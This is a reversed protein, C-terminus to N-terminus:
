LPQGDIRVSSRPAKVTVQIAGSEISVVVEGDDEVSSAELATEFAEHYGAVKPGMTKVDGNIIDRANVPDDVTDSFYRGLTQRGKSDGRFWGESMGRDMIYYAIEPDLAKDPTQVLDIGMAMLGLEDTARKYNEEWTLQVYGRGYYPYYPKGKLYSEGGYEEIPQMTRATEHYTTALMYALHRKDTIGQKREFGGLIAEQGDVQGQNMSGGFPDKRVQDFYIQRDFM